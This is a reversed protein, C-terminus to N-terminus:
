KEGSERDRLKEVLWVFGLLAAIGLPALLLLLWDSQFQM